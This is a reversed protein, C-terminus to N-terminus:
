VSTDDNGGFDSSDDASTDDVATDDVDQTSDDSATDYGANSADQDRPSDYYNNTVYENGPSRGLMSDGM